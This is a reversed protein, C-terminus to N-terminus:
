KIVKKRKLEDLYFQCAIKAFEQKNAIKMHNPLEKLAKEIKSEAAPKESPEVTADLDVCKPAHNLKEFKPRQAPAPDGLLCENRIAGDDDVELFLVRKYPQKESSAGGQSSM